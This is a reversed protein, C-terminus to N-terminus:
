QHKATGIQCRQRIPSLKSPPLQLRPAFYLHSETMARSSMTRTDNM